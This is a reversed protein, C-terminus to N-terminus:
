VARGGAPIYRHTGIAGGFGGFALEKERWVGNEGGLLYNGVRTIM